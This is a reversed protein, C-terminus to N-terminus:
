WAFNDLEAVIRRNLSVALWRDGDWRLDNIAVNDIAFREFDAAGQGELITTLFIRIVVGHAVVVVTEVDSEEVLERIVPVVRSRVDRYSEGGEHSYDIEGRMWHLKAQGYEALGNERSMGSLPGM